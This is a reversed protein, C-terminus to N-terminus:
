KSRCTFTSRIADTPCAHKCRGCRICEGSNIQRTVQVQMPCAAECQRCSICRSHDVQMQYFSIRNFLGYFAGLPCIYKCFPRSIVAASVIVLILLFMKWSFVAGTLGRLQDNMLVHPIGGQLTGAPCIYKCFYPPRVSGQGSGLLPLLIVFVLLVAYKLRRLIRDPGDPVRIKPVPLKHLLDQVFGFPCMFGCVLRGLLVGFLMLSGLVYFPFRRRVLMSQLAGVPCSGLSGPCSYCNLVPVCFAKSTGTFIKKQSFGAAYGNLLVMWFLQWGMRKTEGRHWQHRGSKRCASSNREEESIRNEGLCGNELRDRHMGSM